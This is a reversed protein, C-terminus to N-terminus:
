MCHRARHAPAPTLTGRGAHHNEPAKGTRSELRLTSSMKALHDVLVGGVFGSAGLVVVRAPPRPTEHSHAIM